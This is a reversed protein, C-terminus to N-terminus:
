DLKGCITESLSVVGALESSFVQVGPVHRWTNGHCMRRTSQDDPSNPRAIAPANKASMPGQEMLSQMNGFICSRTRGIRSKTLQVNLLM